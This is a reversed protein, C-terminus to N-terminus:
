KPCNWPQRGGPAPLPQTHTLGRLNNCPMRFPLSLCCSFLFPCAEFAELTATFPHAARRRRRELVRVEPVMNSGRSSPHISPIISQGDATVRDRGRHAKPPIPDAGPPHIDAPLRSSRPLSNPRRGTTQQDFSDSNTPRESLRAQDPRAHKGAGSVAGVPRAGYRIRRATACM